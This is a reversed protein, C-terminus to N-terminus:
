VTMTPNRAAHTRARQHSILGNAQRGCRYYALVLRAQIHGPPSHGAALRRLRALLYRDRGLHLEADMRATILQLRSERLRGAASQHPAGTLSGARATGCSSPLANGSARAPRERQLARAALRSGAHPCGLENLSVKAAPHIEAPYSASRGVLRTGAWGPFRRLLAVYAGIAALANPLPADQWSAKEIQDDAVTSGVRLLPPAM